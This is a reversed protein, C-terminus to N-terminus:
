EIELRLGLSLNHQKPGGSKFTESLDYKAFLSVDDLGIYAGVGYVFPNVNYDRKIKQKVRDGDEKYWLKQKAGLNLGAYGGIGFKFGKNYYRIRDEKEIKRSKGFEFYIPVVLNTTRFKAQKLDTPFTEITTNNGNQVFFQNDKLDYKNWQFSLGYRLRIANSNKLVRTRWQFGLEFYGSGGIKYPSDSLSAGDMIANNLGASVVLGSVTRYDYKVPKPEKSGIVTLGIINAANDGFTIGFAKNKNTDLKLPLNNRENFAIKNELVAIRNEINLARKKAVEQKLEEGKEYTIEKKSVRENIQEVEIRLAEKEGSKIKEKLKEIKSEKTEGETEQATLALCYFSLLIVITYKIITQM